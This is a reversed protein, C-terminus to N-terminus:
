RPSGDLGSPLGARIVRLAENVCDTRLATVEREAKDWAGKSSGKGAGAMLYGDCRSPMAHGAAKTAAVLAVVTSRAEASPAGNHVLSSLVPQCERGASALGTLIAAALEDEHGVRKADPGYFWRSLTARESAAHRRALEELVPAQANSLKHLTDRLVAASKDPTVRSVAVALDAWVYDQRCCSRDEWLALLAGGHRAEFIKDARRFVTTAFANFGAGEVEPWRVEGHLVRLLKDAGVHERAAEIWMPEGDSGLIDPRQAAVRLFLEPDQRYLRDLERKPSPRTTLVQKWYDTTDLPNPHAVIWAQLEAVDVFDRQLIQGAADLCARGLTKSRWAVHECRLAQQEYLVAPYDGAPVTASACRVLRPIDNVDRARGLWSAAIGHVDAPAAADLIARLEKAPTDDASGATSPLYPEPVAGLCCTDACGRRETMARSLEGLSAVTPALAQQAAPAQMPMPERVPTRVVPEAPGCSGFLIAGLAIPAAPLRMVLPYRLHCGNDSREDPKAAM